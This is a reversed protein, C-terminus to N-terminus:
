GAISALGREASEKIYKETPDTRSDRLRTYISTADQKKGAALLNEALLLCSKMGQIREWGQTDAAKFLADAVSADAINALCWCGLIRAQVDGDCTMQKFLPAAQADKLGGLAQALALRRRGKASSAVARFQDLAGDGIALMAATAPDGLEEDLLLKGLEPVCTKDGCVQLERVLFGRISKPRDGNIQSALADILMSRDKEKGRRCVYLAIGHLTYRAKYDAGNDVEKFMDVIALISDKGGSLIADYIPTATDWRIGTLKGASDPRGGAGAADLEPMKNVLEAIKDSSAMTNDEGLVRLVHFWLNV